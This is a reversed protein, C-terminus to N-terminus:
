AYAGPINFINASGFSGDWRALGNVNTGGALNFIGGAYVDNGSVAIANVENNIGDGLPYWSVGDWKAIRNTPSGGAETFFGGAYLDTGNVAM